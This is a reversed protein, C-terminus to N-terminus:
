VSLEVEIESPDVNARVAVHEKITELVTRPSGTGTIGWDGMDIVWVRGVRRVFAKVIM